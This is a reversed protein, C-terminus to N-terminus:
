DGGRPDLRRLGESGLLEKLSGSDPPSHQLWADQVDRAAQRLNSSPYSTFYADMTEVFAERSIGRAICMEVVQKPPLGVRILSPLHYDNAMGQRQSSRRSVFARSAAIEAEQAQIVEPPLMFDTMKIHPHVTGLYDFIAKVVLPKESYGAITNYVTSLPLGAGRAVSAWTTHLSLLERKIAPWDVMRAKQKM